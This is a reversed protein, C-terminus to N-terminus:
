LTMKDWLQKIQTLHEVIDDGEKAKMDTIERMIQNKTQKGCSQHIGELNTWMEHATSCNSTHFKQDDSLRDRIVKQTYTDNYRWNAYGDTDVTADPCKIKGTVYEDLHCIDVALLLDERWSDWNDETLLFITRHEESLDKPCIKVIKPV